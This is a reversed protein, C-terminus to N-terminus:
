WLPLDVIRSNSSIFAFCCGFSKPQLDEQLSSDEVSATLGFNIYSELGWLQTSGPQLVASPHAM